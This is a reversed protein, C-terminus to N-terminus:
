PLQRIMWKGGNKELILNGMLGSPPRGSFDLRAEIQDQGVAFLDLKFRNAQFLDHFSTMKNNGTDVRLQYSDWYLGYFFDGKRKLRKIFEAGPMPSKIDVYVTEGAPIFDNFAAIEKKRVADIFKEVQKAAALFEDEGLQYDNSQITYQLQFDYASGTQYSASACQFLSFGLSVGLSAFLFPFVLHAARAM